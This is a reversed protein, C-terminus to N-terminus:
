GPSPPSKSRLTSWGSSPSPTPTVRADAGDALLGERRRGPPLQEDGPPRPECLRRRLRPRLLRDGQREPGPLPSATPPASSSSWRTPITRPSRPPRSSAGTSSRRTRSRPGSTRTASWTSARRAGAPTRARLRAPDLALRRHGAPHRARQKPPPQEGLTTPDFADPTIPPVGAGPGGAPPPADDFGGGSSSSTRPCARLHARAPADDLPLRDAVWRPRSASLPSSTTGSGPNRHSRRCPPGLRGRLLVCCSRRHDRDREVADRASYSRLGQREFRSMQSDDRHETM